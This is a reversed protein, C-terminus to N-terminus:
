VGMIAARQPAILERVRRTADRADLREYWQRVRPFPELEFGVPGSQELYALAYPEVISFAGNALWDHGELAREVAKLQSAALKHAVACRAEDTPGVGAAPKM